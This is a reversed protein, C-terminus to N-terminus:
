PRELMNRGRPRGTGGLCDATKCCPRAARKPGFLCGKVALSGNGAPQSARSAPCAAGCTGGGARSADLRGPGSQAGLLFLARQYAAQVGRFGASVDNLLADCVHPTYRLEALTTVGARRAHRTPL